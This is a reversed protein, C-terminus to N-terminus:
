MLYFLKLLSGNVMSDDAISIIDEEGIENERTFKNFYDFRPGGQFVAVQVIRKEPVQNLNMNEYDDDAEEATDEMNKMEDPNIEWPAKENENVDWM